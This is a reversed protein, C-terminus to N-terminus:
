EVLRFGSFRTTFAPSVEARIDGGSTTSVHGYVQIYDSVALDMLISVQPSAENPNNSQFHFQTYHYSSGNKYIRVTAITLSSAGSGRMDLITNFQYKGAKGSPVTFKYNGSTNDFASDTDFEKTDFAVLTTVGSTLTQNSTLVASFSPTNVGGFGSQTAGSGLSVTDGSGGITISTGSQPTINNVELTSM